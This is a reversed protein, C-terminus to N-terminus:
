KKLFSRIFTAREHWLPDLCLPFHQPIVTDLSLHGRDGISRQDGECVTGSPQLSVGQDGTTLLNEQKGRDVWIHHRFFVSLASPYKREAPDNSQPELRKVCMTSGFVLGNSKRFVSNWFTTYSVMKQQLLYPLSVLIEIYDIFNLKRPKKFYRDIHLFPITANIQFCM